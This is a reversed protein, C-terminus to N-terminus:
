VTMQPFLRVPLPQIESTVCFCFHGGYMMFFPSKKNEKTCLLYKFLKLYIIKGDSIKCTEYRRKFLLIAELYM